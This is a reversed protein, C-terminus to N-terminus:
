EVDEFYYLSKFEFYTIVKNILLIGNVENQQLEKNETKM